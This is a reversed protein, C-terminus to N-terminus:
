TMQTSLGLYNGKHLGELFWKRMKQLEERQNREKGSIGFCNNAMLINGLEGWKWTRSKRLTKTTFDQEFWGICYYLQSWFICWCEVIDYCMWTRKKLVVVVLVFVLLSLCVHTLQTISCTCVYGSYFVGSLAVNFELYGSISPLIQSCNELVRKFM